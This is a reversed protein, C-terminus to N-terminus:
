LKRHEYVLKFRDFKAFKQWEKPNSKYALMIHNVMEINVYDTEFEKHLASILDQLTEITPGNKLPKEIGRFHITAERLHKKQDAHILIKSLSM